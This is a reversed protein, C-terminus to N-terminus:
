KYHVEYCPIDNSREVLVGHVRCSGLFDEPKTTIKYVAKVDLVLDIFEAKSLVIKEVEKFTTREFDIIQKIGAIKM